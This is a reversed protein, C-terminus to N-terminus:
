YHEASIQLSKSLIASILPLNFTLSDLSKKEGLLIRFTRHSFVIMSRWLLQKGYGDFEKETRCVLEIM